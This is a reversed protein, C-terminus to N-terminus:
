LEAARPKSVFLITRVYVRLAIDEQEEDFDVDVQMKGAGSSRAMLGKQNVAIQDSNLFQNINIWISPTPAEGGRLPLAGAGWEIQQRTKVFQDSITLTAEVEIPAAM